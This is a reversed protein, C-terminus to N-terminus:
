KLQLERRVDLVRKRAPESLKPMALLAQSTRDITNLEGHHHAHNVIASVLYDLMVHDDFSPDTLASNFKDEFDGSELVYALGKISEGKIRYDPDSEFAKELTSVVAEGGFFGIIGIIERRHRPMVNEALRKEYDGALELPKENALNMYAAAFHSAESGSKLIAIADIAKDFPLGRALIAAANEQEKIDKSKLLEAVVLDRYNDSLLLLKEAADHLPVKKSETFYAL